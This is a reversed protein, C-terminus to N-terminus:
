QSTVKTLMLPADEALKLRKESSADDDEDNSKNGNLKQKQEARRSLCAVVSTIDAGRLSSRTALRGFDVGNSNGNGNKLEKGLKLASTISGNTVTQETDTSNSAEEASSAVSINDDENNSSESHLRKKTNNNNNVHPPEDDMDSDGNITEDDGDIGDEVNVTPSDVSLRRKEALFGNAALLKSQDALLRNGATVKGMFSRIENFYADGDKDENSTKPSDDLITPGDSEHKKLHRDLNTQQGFCRDCLPCRFPKEKNHINRVHRQLNSSISFSRESHPSSPLSLM